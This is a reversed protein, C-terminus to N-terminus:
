IIEEIIMTGNQNPFVVDSTNDNSAYQASYIHPDTDGPTFIWQLHVTSNQNTLSTPEGYIVLQSNPESVGDIALRCNMDDAGAEQYGDAIATVKVRHSADAMTFSQTMTTDTFTSSNTFPSGTYNGVFAPTFSGGGANDDVYKKTAVDQDATPDVVNHIIGDDGFTITKPTGSRDVTIQLEESVTTMNFGPEAALGLTDDIPGILGQVGAITGADPDLTFTYNSASDLVLATGSYNFNDNSAFNGAGDSLQVNGAAGVASGGGSADEWTAAGNGDATLVQGMTAAESDVDSALVTELKTDLVTQLDTQDELDGTINGWVAGTDSTDLLSWTPEAATNTNIYIDGTDLDTYRSGPEAFGVGTLNDTPSGSASLELPGVQSTPETLLEVQTDALHSAASTSNYGRTCSVIARDTAYEYSIQESEILVVGNNTPLTTTDDIQIETQTDDINLRLRAM